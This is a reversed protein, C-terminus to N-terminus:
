PFRRVSVSRRSPCPALRPRCVCSTHPVTARLCRVFKQIAPLVPYGYGARWAEVSLLGIDMGTRSASVPFASRSRFLTTYPFLTPSPPPRHRLLFFSPYLPSCSHPLVVFELP